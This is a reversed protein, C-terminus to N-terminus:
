ANPLYFRGHIHDHMFRVVQTTRMSSTDVVVADEPCRLPALKRNSDQRDRAENERLIGKLSVGKAGHKKLQALRRKARVEASATVFFKFPVKPFVITGIDRGEVVVPWVRSWKKSL